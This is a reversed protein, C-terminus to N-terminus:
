RYDGAPNFRNGAELLGKGPVHNVELRVGDPDEFLISYYGPAWPGEEPPHIITAKQELLFRHLRDIVERDRARLCLHHLGVSGQVFRQGKFEPACPGVGIATKGGVYYVMEEGEFVPTLGLFSLLKQYFPRTAAMNGSALITHAVGTLPDPKRDPHKLGWESPTLFPTESPLQRLLDKDELCDKVYEIQDNGWFLEGDVIFTPVGFVGRSFADQLGHSLATKIAEDHTRAVWQKGEFGNQSLYAALAEDSGMDVKKQWCAEFLKQILEPQREGSVEKLSLRLATYPKYPHKLPLSFPIENRLAYRWAFKHVFLRKPGLTAIARQKWVEALKPYPVPYYTVEAPHTKLLRQLNVWGFYAWPSLYDFYFDLKKM